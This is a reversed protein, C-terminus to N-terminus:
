TTLHTYANYSYTLPQFFMDWGEQYEMINHRLLSVITRNCKETQENMQPYYNTADM